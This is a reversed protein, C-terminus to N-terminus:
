NSLETALKAKLQKIRIEITRTERPSADFLQEELMRLKRFLRKQEPTLNREDPKPDDSYNQFADAIKWWENWTGRLPTGGYSSSSGGAGTAEVAGPELDCSNDNLLFFSGDNLLLFSTGDNLLLGCNAM